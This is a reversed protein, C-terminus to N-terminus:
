NMVTASHLEDETVPKLNFGKVEQLGELKHLEAVKEKLNTRLTQLEQEVIRQDQIIMDKTKSDPLKMFMNGFCVWSKDGTSKKNLASLAERNSNRKRDLEVIQQRDTLIENAREELEVLKQVNSASFMGLGPGDAM